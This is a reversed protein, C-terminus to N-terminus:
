EGQVTGTVTAVALRAPTGPVEDDYRYEVALSGKFSGGPQAQVPTAMDDQVCAVVGITTGSEAGATISAGAAIPVENDLDPVDDKKMNAAAATTCRVGIVKVGRNGTNDLQFFMRVKNEGDAVLTHAKQDCAFNPDSFKCTAPAKLMPLVVAFIIGLVILIVFLALGYTILYEMVAQGKRYGKRRGTENNKRM